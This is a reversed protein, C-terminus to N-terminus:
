PCAWKHPYPSSKNSLRLLVSMQALNRISSRLGLARRWLPLENRHYWDLSMMEPTYEHRTRVRRLRELQKFDEALLSPFFTVMVSLIPRAYWRTTKLLLRPCFDKESIEETGCFVSEFAIMQDKKAVQTRTPRSKSASRIGVSDFLRKELGKMSPFSFSM